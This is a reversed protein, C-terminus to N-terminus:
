SSVTRCHDGCGLRYRNRAVWRYIRDALPRVLPVGFMWAIWRGRPLITLLREVAAAAQWTENGPGVLQIAEVYARAPIWPFRAAIGETQYPLIEIEGAVDWARVVNVLRACM